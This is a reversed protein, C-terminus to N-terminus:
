AVTAKRRRALAVLGGCAVILGPLGAGVIPGPVSAVGTLNVNDIRAADNGMDGAYEFRIAIDAQNQAAAGLTWTAHGGPSSLVHTGLLTFNVGDSSWYAKLTDSAETNVGQWDYELTINTLGITSLPSTGQTATLTGNGDFLLQNNNISVGGAEQWGNGVTSNNARNFDDFFITDASASAACSLVIAAGLISSRILM